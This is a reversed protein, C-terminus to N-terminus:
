PSVEGITVARDNDANGYSIHVTKYSDPLIDAANESWEILVIRDGGLYEDFGIEILAESDLIRYLDFHAVRGAPTDYENAIAFTPSTVRGKYGLGRLVGRTFATKGAGLDGSFAVVDGLRLSRAYEAGLAETEEPSHTTYEMLIVM